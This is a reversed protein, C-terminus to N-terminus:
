RHTRCRARADRCLREVEAFQAAVEADPGDLEVILVAAALAAAQLLSRKKLDTM